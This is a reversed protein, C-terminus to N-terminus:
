VTSYVYGLSEHSRYAIDVAIKHYQNTNSWSLPMSQLTVPYAEKLQVAYIQNGERDYQAIEITGTYNDYYEIDSGNNDDTIYRHWEDFFFKETMKDTVVFQLNVDNYMSGYAIKRTPGYDKWESTAIIRGPFEADEVRFRLEDKNFFQLFDPASLIRVEYKNPSAPESGLQARFRNINFTM